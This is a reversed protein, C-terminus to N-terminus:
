HAARRMSAYWRGHLHRPKAAPASAQSPRASNRLPFTFRSPQQISGSPAPASRRRCPKSSKSITPQLRGPSPSPATGVAPSPTAAPSAPACRSRPRDSSRGRPNKWGATGRMLSSNKRSAVAPSSRGKERDIAMGVPAGGPRIGAVPRGGEREDQHMSSRAVMDSTRSISMSMGRETPPWSIGSAAWIWRPM